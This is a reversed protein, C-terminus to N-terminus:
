ILEEPHTGGRVRNVLDFWLKVGHNLPTNNSPGGVGTVIVLQYSERQAMERITKRVSTTILYEGGGAM